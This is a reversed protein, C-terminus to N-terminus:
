AFTPRVAEGYKLNAFKIEVEVDIDFLKDQAEAFITGGNKVQATLKIGDATVNATAGVELFYVDKNYDYEYVTNGNKDKVVNGDKDKAERKNYGIAFKTKAFTVDLGNADIKVQLNKLADGVPVLDAATLKKEAGAAADATAPKDDKKLLGTIFNKLTNMDNYAISGMGIAGLEAVFKGATTDLKASLLTKEVSGEMYTMAVNIFDIAPDQTDSGLLADLLNGIAFEGKDDTFDVGLLATPDISVDAKLTYERAPIDLKITTGGLNVLNDMKIAKKVNIKAALSLDLANIEKGDYFKSNNLAFNAGNVVFEAVEVKATLKNPITIDLLNGGNTNKVVVQKSPIVIEADAGTVKGTSDFAFNFKISLAPLVTGLAGLDLDIGLAALYPAATPAVGAVIAGVGDPDTPDLLTGLNIEFSCATDTLTPNSAALAAMKIYGGIQDAVAAIADDDIYPKGNNYIPNGNTDKGTEETPNIAIGAKTFQEKVTKAVDVAKINFKKDGVQMYATSNAISEGDYNNKYNFYFAQNNGEKIDIMLGNAGKGNALSSVLDLGLKFEVTYNKATKGEEQASVNLKTAFNFASFASDEGVAKAYGTIVKDFVDNVDVVNTDDPKPTPKQEKDKCGVFLTAMCAVVLVIAIISLWKSKKMM